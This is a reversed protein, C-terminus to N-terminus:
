LCDIGGPHILANTPTFIIVCVEVVLILFIVAPGVVGLTGWYIMLLILVPIMTEITYKGLIARIFLAPASVKVCDQRMLGVGFIKKGLTQGNQLRLPLLFEMILFALFPYHWKKM